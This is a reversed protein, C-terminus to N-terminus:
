PRTPRRSTHRVRLVIVIGDCTRHRIIYPPATVLERIKTGAVPRGRNPLDAMSDGAAYLADALERAARPNRENLYQYTRWVGRAAAATWVAQM